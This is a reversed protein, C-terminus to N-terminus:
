EVVWENINRKEGDFCIGIKFLQKDSGRWPLLYDKDNIQELAKQAPENLKFEFFYIYKKTEVISDIRGHAIRVESRCDLGLMAFVLHIFTHYYSETDKIIDYPISALFRRLVEIMEEVNGRKMASPLKNVLADSDNISVEFCHKILSVSFSSSVELNPYDLKFEEIYDDYDSITLYGAQYLVVKADMNEIDFRQFENVGFSLNGLELIDIKQKKILELLFTPTGSTYWYPVFKGMSEFHKLLGFPNYLTLPKESFRYGNYYEKLEEIYTERTKGTKNLINTIEPEFHNEVEEQTLGCIDAYDPNLTLDMIHNLDSFISVHAFKTVGTLFVFRLYEDSSKLIGYFGKLENRIQIHLDPNDMADLQPKDYEDIIVAVRENHKNHLKRILDTFQVSIFDDGLVIDNEEAITKFQNKVVSRFLDVGDYKCNGVNLRLLIVPYKKWEWELGDIALAPFGATEQFLERKGAFIEKITTCLLSKGFRRPRSLFYAGEGQILNYIISTKDAYVHNGRRLKGFDQIGIPLKRMFKSGQYNENLM